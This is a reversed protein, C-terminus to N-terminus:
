CLYRDILIDVHVVYSSRNVVNTEQGSGHGCVDGVGSSRAAAPYIRRVALPYSEFLALHGLHPM